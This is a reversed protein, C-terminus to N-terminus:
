AVLRGGGKPEEGVLLREFGSSLGFISFQEESDGWLRDDNRVVKTRKRRVDGRDVVKM